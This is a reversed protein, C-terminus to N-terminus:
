YIVEGEQILSANLAIRDYESISGYYDEEVIVYGDDLEKLINVPYFVAYGKNVCYVGSLMKKAGIEYLNSTEDDSSEAATEETDTEDTNTEDANKYKVIIDGDEFTSADILYYDDYSDVITVPTFVTKIEGAEYYQLLCGYQNIDDGGGQYCYDKPIMLFDKSVLSTSPIKLGEVVDSYIEIDTYRTNALMYGYSSFDIRAYRDGEQDFIFSFSGTLTKDICSFYIDITKNDWYTVQDEETMQFIITFDDTPLIKYLPSGAEVLEGSIITDISYSDPDIQTISFNDLDFDEYNDFSSVFIGSVPTTTVSFTYVDSANISATLIDDSLLSLLTTSLGNKETYIDEYDNPDYSISYARLASKFKALNEDSLESESSVLNQLFDGNEDLTCVTDNVGLRDGTSVYYNVYGTYESTYVEEDRVILAEYTNGHGSEGSTVTYIGTEDSIMYRVLLVIIYVFIVVFIVASFHLRFHQQEPLFRSINSKSKQHKKDSRRNKEQAM